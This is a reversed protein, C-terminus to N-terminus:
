DKDPRMRISNLQQKGKDSLPNFRLKGDKTVEQYKVECVKNKFENQNNWIYERLEDSFGSGCKSTELIVDTPMHAMQEDINFVKKEKKSYWYQVVIGGLNGELKTGAEGEYFGVIKVDLPHFRKVKQWAYTRKFDYMSNTDKIMAGEFGQEIYRDCLKMLNDSDFSLLYPIYPVPIVVKNSSMHMQSISSVLMQLYIKRQSLNMLCRGREFDIKTMADFVMYSAIKNSGKAFLDNMTADFNKGIVEGDIMFDQQVAQAMLLLDSEIQDYGEVAQGKRSFMYVKNNEFDTVGTLRVGDYKPEHIASKIPRDFPEALQVNFEPILGVYVTNITKVSMGIKLDKSLIRKLWLVIDPIEEGYYGECFAFFMLMRQIGSENISEQGSMRNLEYEVVQNLNFADNTAIRKYVTRDYMSHQRQLHAKGVHFIKYPNYTYYLIMKLAENSSYRQLIAKKDLSSSTAGIKELANIADIM